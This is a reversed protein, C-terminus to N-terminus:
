RDEPKWWGMQILAGSRFLLAGAQAMLEVSSRLEPSGVPSRRIEDALHCLDRVTLGEVDKLRMADISVIETM